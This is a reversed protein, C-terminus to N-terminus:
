SKWLKEIIFIVASFWGTVLAIKLNIGNVGKEIETIKIENKKHDEKTAFTEHAKSIFLDFKSTLEKQGQEIKELTKTMVMNSQKLLASDTKIEDIELFWKQVDQRLEHRAKMQDDTIKIELKYLDEITIEKKAM